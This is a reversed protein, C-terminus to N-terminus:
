YDKLLLEDKLVSVVQTFSSYVRRASVSCIKTLDLCLIAPIRQTNGTKAVCLQRVIQRCVGFACSDVNVQPCLCDGSEPVFDPSQIAAPSPNSSGPSALDSQEQRAVEPNDSRAAKRHGFFAAPKRQDKCKEVATCRVHAWRLPDQDFHTAFMTQRCVLLSRVLAAKKM